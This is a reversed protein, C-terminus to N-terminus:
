TKVKKKAAISLTALPTWYIAAYTNTLETKKNLMDFKYAIYEYYETGDDVKSLESFLCNGIRAYEHNIEKNLTIQISKKECVM